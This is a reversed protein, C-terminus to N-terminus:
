PSIVQASYGNALTYPLGSTIYIEGQDTILVAQFDQHERWFAIAEELGMVFLATSLCDAYMASDSIISVSSLGADAPYGTRPDIIHGYTNGEHTFYRQYGGSTVVAKNEIQVSLIAGGGYPNQIGINWLSGDQKKGLAYINGGLSIMASSIHDEKLQEALQDAVFGKTIAGFDLEMGQPLSLNEGDWTILQSDVLPLLHDITEAEPVIEEGLTFGWAKVIPYISLDFTGQTIESMEIGYELVEAVEESLPLNNLAQNESILNIQFVESSSRTTSFLEEMQYLYSKADSLATTSHNGWVSISILTDMAYIESSEEASYDNPLASCCAFLPLSILLFPIWKQKIKKIKKM